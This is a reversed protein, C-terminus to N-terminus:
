KIIRLEILRVSCSVDNMFFFFFCVNEYVLKQFARDNESGKEYGVDEEIDM